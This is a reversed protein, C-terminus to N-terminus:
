ARAGAGSASVRRLPVLVSADCLRVACRMSQKINPRTPQWNPIGGVGYSGESGCLISAKRAKSSREREREREDLESSGHVRGRRRRRRLCGSSGTAAGIGRLPPDDKAAGQESTGGRAGWTGGIGEGEGRGMDSV